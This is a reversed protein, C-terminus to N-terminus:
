VSSESPKSVLLLENLRNKFFLELSDAILTDALTWRDKSPPLAIRFATDPAEKNMFRHLRVLYDWQSEAEEATFATIDFTHGFHAWIEDMHAKEIGYDRNKWIAPTLRVQEIFEPLRSHDLM